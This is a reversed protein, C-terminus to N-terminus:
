PSIRMSRNLRMACAVGTLCIVTFFLAGGQWGMVDYFAAFVPTGLFTGVNGFQAIAGYTLAALAPTPAVAPVSAFTFGPLLGFSAMMLLIFGLVAAEPLNLGFVGIAGVALALFASAFGAVAPLGLRMLVGAGLTFAMSVLSAFAMMSGAAAVRWDLTEILYKGLFTLAALFLITYCCFTLALLLPPGSRYVDGHAKLLQSLGPLPKRQDGHGSRGLALVVAVGVLALVVAHAFMLGRWGFGPVILPAVSSTIAFGVGFFCGWLSLAIPRDKTAAHMAMLAPACVVILLHSFGELFRSVLFTMGTPAVSGAAAIVAGGFLAIAMGRKLGIAAVVAGTAIAFVVGVIGLLSVAFGSAVLSLGLDRGAADMVPAVKAFHMAAALGAAFLVLVALWDTKERSEPMTAPLPDPRAMPPLSLVAPKASDFGCPEPRCTCSPSSKAM